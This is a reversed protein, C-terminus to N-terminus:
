LLVSLEARRHSLNLRCHGLTKPSLSQSVSCCPSMARSGIILGSICSGASYGLKWELFPLGFNLLRGERSCMPGDGCPSLLCNEWPELMNLLLGAVM